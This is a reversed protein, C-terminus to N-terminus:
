QKIMTGVVIADTQIFEITKGQNVIVLHREHTLGGATFNAKGTGDADISYTGSYVRDNASGDAFQTDAADFTGDGHFHWMGGTAFSNYKTINDPNPDQSVLGVFGFGYIGKLSCNSFRFEPCKAESATKPLTASQALMETGAGGALLLAILSSALVRKRSSVSTISMNIEKGRVNM